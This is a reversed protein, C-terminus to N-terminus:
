YQLNVTSCKEGSKPSFIETVGDIFNGKAQFCVQTFGRPVTQVNGCAAAPGPLSCTTNGQGTGNVRIVCRVVSTAAADPIATGGCEYAITEETAM